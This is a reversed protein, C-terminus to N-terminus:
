AAEPDPLKPDPFEPKSATTTRTTGGSIYVKGCEPCIDTHLTVSQSVVRRDEREAKARERSVHEQEHSRVMAGASEPAIRTPTKFSVGMDNSGDQYKRQECTQCKGEEAAEQVNGIGRTRGSEDARGSSEPDLYQIRMRVAYEAPDAGKRLFRDPVPGEEEDAKNVPPVPRSQSGTGRAWPSSATGSPIQSELTGAKEPATGQAQGRRLSQYSYVPIYLGIGSIRSVMNIVENKNERVGM